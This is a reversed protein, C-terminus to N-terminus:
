KYFDKQSNNFLIKLQINFMKNKKIKFILNYKLFHYGIALLSLKLYSPNFNIFSPLLNAISIQSSLGCSNFM